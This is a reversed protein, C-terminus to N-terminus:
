ENDKRNPTPKGFPPDETEEDHDALCFDQWRRRLPTNARLDPIVAGAMSIAALFAAASRSDAPLTAGARSALRDLSGILKQAKARTAAISENSFAPRPDDFSPFLLAFAAPSSQAFRVPVDLAEPLGQAAGIRESLKELAQEAMQAVLDELSAFYSYVTARGLEAQTAVREVSFTM